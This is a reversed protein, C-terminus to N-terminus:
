RGDMFEEARRKAIETLAREDEETSEAFGAFVSSDTSAVYFLCDEALSRLWELELEANSKSGDENTMLEPYCVGGITIDYLGSRFLVPTVYGHNEDDVYETLHDETEVYEHAGSVDDSSLDFESPDDSSDDETEGSDSIGAGAVVTVFMHYDSSFRKYAFDLVALLFEFTSLKVTSSRDQADLARLTYNSKHVVLL